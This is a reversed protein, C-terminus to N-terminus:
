NTPFYGEDVYDAIAEADDDFLITSGDTTDNSIHGTLCIDPKVYRENSFDGSVNYYLTPDHNDNTMAETTWTRNDFVSLYAGMCHAEGISNHGVGPCVVYDWEFLEMDPANAIRAKSYETKNRAYQQYYRGSYFFNTNRALRYPGQPISYVNNLLNPANGCHYPDYPVEDGPGYEDGISNLTEDDDIDDYDKYYTPKTVGGAPNTDVSTQMVTIPTNTYNFIIEEYDVGLAQSINGLGYPFPLQKTMDFAEWIDNGEGSEGMKHFKATMNSNHARGMWYAAENMVDFTKRYANENTVSAFIDSIGDSANQADIGPFDYIKPIEGAFCNGHDVPELYSTKFIPYAFTLYFSCVGVVLKKPRDEKPINHYWFAAYGMVPIGGADDGYFIWGVSDPLNLLEKVVKYQKTWFNFWWKDQSTLPADGAVVSNDELWYRNAYTGGFFYMYKTFTTNVTQAIDWDPTIMVTNLQEAIPLVEAAYQYGNGARGPAVVMIDNDVYTTPVYIHLFFEVGLYSYCIVNEGKTLKIKSPDYVCSEAEEAYLMRDAYSNGYIAMDEPVGRFNHYPPALYTIHPESYYTYESTTETTMEKAVYNTVPPGPVYSVSNSPAPAPSAQSAQSAIAVELNKRSTYTVGFLILFIVTLMFSVGLAISMLLLKPNGNLNSKVTAM